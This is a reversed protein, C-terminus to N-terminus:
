ARAFQGHFGFPIHHPVRARALETLTAADLVVMSSTGRDPELVVTLLVGDDEEERGPRGVHVPEGPYGDSWTLTEGTTVDVKVVTDFFDSHAASGWVYRYPRGNVRGYDIRPLELPEDALRNREVAGGPLLRLRELHADPVRQGSRLRQLGLAHVIEPDAYACLDLVIDDGDEFANVNHFVFFADTRWDGVHAGSRRDFVVLRTGDEPRWAFNEIFPRGGFALKLPNVTYPHEVLVAFRETMAFSHIYAPRRVPLGAVVRDDEILRYAPRGMLHVGMSLAKGDDGHPHALGGTTVPPPNSVGLTELTEPDFAVPLPTETLAVWRGMVKAVNVNGNDTFGPHFLSAVRRFASRCPDTAFESFEIRGGKAAEFAKSRLFRNAYSVAGGAITFRHLMALGDFWHNVTQGGLDWRAPGTRLLSGALWSPLEGELELEGVTIEDDLNTLGLTADTSLSVM